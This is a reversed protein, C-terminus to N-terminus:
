AIVVSRRKSQASGDWWVKPKTSEFVVVLELSRYDGPEILATKAVPYTIIMTGTAIEIDDSSKKLELVKTTDRKEKKIELILETVNAWDYDVLTGDTLKKKVLYTRRYYNGQYFILKVNLSQDFDLIIPTM